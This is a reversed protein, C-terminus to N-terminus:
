RGRQCRFYQRFACSMIKISDLVPSFHSLPEGMYVTAINVEIIRYEQMIASMLMRMEFDYGIEPYSVLEPLLSAPIGRLGTQTDAATHGISLRLICKASLNGLRNRAPAGKFDRCGLVLADNCGNMAESIKLIDGTRHQGDADATVVNCNEYHEIVYQFATKLALGKGCNLQHRLLKVKPIHKLQEFIERFEEGSGDDVIIIKAFAPKLVSVMELLYAAPKYAPIVLIVTMSM